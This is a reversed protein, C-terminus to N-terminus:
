KWEELIRKLQTFDMKEPICSDLTNLYSLEQMLNDVNTVFRIYPVKEFWTEYFSQIKHNYGAIVLCPTGTIFCLIMGHLRDTIVYKYSSIEHIKKEVVKNRNAKGIYGKSPYMMDLFVYSEKLADLESMIQNKVQESISKEIDNRVCLGVNQRQMGTQCPSLACVIDPVLFLRCKPYADKMIEYSKQERAFIVIRNSNYITKSFEFDAKGTETNEYYITEPFIVKLNHPFHSIIERRIRENRWYINGMNGGGQLILLDDSKVNRRLYPMKRAFQMIPIEEIECDGLVERLIKYTAYTIVSDGINYHDPTGIFYVKRNERQITRNDECIIGRFFEKVYWNMNERYEGYSLRAIKDAMKGYYLGKQIDPFDICKGEKPLNCLFAVL